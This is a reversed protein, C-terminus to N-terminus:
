IGKMLKKYRNKVMSPTLVFHNKAIERFGIQKMMRHVHPQYSTAMVSEFHYVEFWLSLINGILKKSAWKKHIGIDSVVDVECGKNNINFILLYFLGDDKKLSNVYVDSKLFAIKAEFFQEPVDPFSCKKMTDFLQSFRNKGVKVLSSELMM